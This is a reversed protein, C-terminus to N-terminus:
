APDKSTPLQDETWAVMGGTVNRADLGAASALETAEASRRGSRCVFALPSGSPVDSLRAPLDGLPLHQSPVGPALDRREEDERVDVLHLTGARVGAVADRPSMEKM